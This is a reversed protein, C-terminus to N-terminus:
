DEHFHTPIVASIKCNLNEKIYKILEASSEITAPTDFIIAENENVIIMGNCAVRGFDKTNLFSIHRYVHDSLKEIILIDTNLIISSDNMSNFFIIREPTYKESAYISEGSSNKLQLFILATLIFFTSTKINLITM